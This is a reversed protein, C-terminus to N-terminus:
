PAIGGKGFMFGAFAGLKIGYENQLSLNSTDESQSEASLEGSLSRNLHLVSRVGVNADVPGLSGGAQCGVGVYGSNKSWGDFDDFSYSLGGMIGFGVKGQFFFGSEDYGVTACGGFGPVYCIELSDLGTPDVWRVPNGAVYAFLNDGGKYGIPDRSLWRRLAPSYWRAGAIVLNAANRETYYGYKGGYRHATFISSNSTILRGYADYNYSGVVNGTASTLYRTEGQPGFHYWQTEPVTTTLQTQSILGDAGWTYALIPTGNEIEGLLREGAFIYFRKAGSTRQYVRKGRADYAFSVSQAHSSVSTLQNNTNWALVFAPNGGSQIATINGDLDHTTMGAAFSSINNAADYTAFPANNVSSINGARDYGYSMVYPVLGSRQESTLRYLMDYGFNVQSGSLEVIKTLNGAKNQTADYELAYSAFTTTGVKDVISSPWSREDNWTYNTSTGNSNLRQLLKGTGDYSFANNDGFSKASIMRGAADYNYRWVGVLQAGNKWSISKILDDPWYEYEIRQQNILGSASYNYIEAKLLRNPFYEYSTNGVADSFSVVSDDAIYQFHRNPESTTPFQISSLRGLSDYSYNTQQGRANTKSNLRLESNYTYKEKSADPYIIQMLETAEGYRYHTLNQRADTFSSLDLDQDWAWELQVALPRSLSELAGCSPCFTYNTRLAGEDEIYQLDRHQYNYTVTKGDAHTLSRLRRAADFSQQETIRTLPTSPDPDISIATSDGSNTFNEYRKENGLPDIEARMWGYFPSNSDEEYSYRKRGQKSGFPPSITTIQGFSNRSITWKKNSGDLLASPLHTFVPDSYEYTLIAGLNDSVSVLDVGSWSYQRFTGDIRSIKKLRGQTYYEYNLTSSGDSWSTQNRENDYTFKFTAGSSAGTVLPYQIQINDLNSNFDYNVVGGKSNPVVTRLFGGTVPSDQMYQPTLSHSSSTASALPVLNAGNWAYSFNYTSAPDNDQSLSTLYGLGDYNFNISKAEGYSPEILSVLSLRGLNNYALSVQTGANESISTIRNGTWIFSISKQSPVDFVSTLQTGSYTLTQVNGASDTLSILRGAADFDYQFNGAKSLEEPPGANSVRYGGPIQALTAFYGPLPNPSSGTGYSLRQGDGDVIMWESVGPMGPALVHIDYNFTANGMARDTELAHTNVHIRNRLPYGRTKVPDDISILLNGTAYNISGTVRSESSNSNSNCLLLGKPGPENGPRKRMNPLAIALNQVTLLLQYNVGYKVVFPNQNPGTNGYQVSGSFDSTIQVQSYIQGNYTTTNSNSYGTTVYYLHQIGSNFVWGPHNAGISTHSGPAAGAPINGLGEVILRYPTGPNGLVYATVAGYNYGYDIFFPWGGFHEYQLFSHQTLYFSASQKDAQKVEILNQLAGSILGTGAQQILDMPGSDWSYEPGLQSFNRIQLLSQNIWANERVEGYGSFIVAPDALLLRPVLICILLCLHRLISFNSMCVWGFKVTVVILVGM